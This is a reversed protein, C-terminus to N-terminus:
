GVTYPGTIVTVTQGHNLDREITPCSEFHRGAVAGCCESRPACSPQHAEGETSECCRRLVMGCGGPCLDSSM